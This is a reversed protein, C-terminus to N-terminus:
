DLQIDKTEQSKKKIYVNEKKTSKSWFTPTVGPM